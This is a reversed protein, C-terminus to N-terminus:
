RHEAYLNPPLFHALEQYRNEPLHWGKIANLGEQLQEATRVGLVVSTIAHHDAVYQIATTTPPTSSDALVIDVIAIVEEKTYGAVPKLLKGALMGQALAGRAMVSIGKSQLLPLVSEEPRRDLLSYQLMVSSINSLEVWRRIVNPRISSIGYFRIKGSQKLLEFAEITEEIPDEMTGGHLQYLDIYDTQLRRLSDEVAKLIYSKNPNWSWGEKGETWQNGVKTALVVKDRKGQLAHGIMTESAGRGYLDATDLYNIGNDLAQHIISIGQAEDHLSMTGLGLRSIKCESNGLNQYTM